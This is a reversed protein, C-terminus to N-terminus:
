IELRLKRERSAAAREEKGKSREWAAGGLGQLRGPRGLELGSSRLWGAGGAPAAVRGGADSRV